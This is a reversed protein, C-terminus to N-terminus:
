TMGIISIFRGASEGEKRYSFFTDIHDSTCIESININKILIGQEKLNLYAIKKLDLFFLDKKKQYWNQYSPFVKNFMEIRKQSVLYCCLGIGPGIYVILDKLNSGLNKLEDIMHKIILKSLGKYGAHAAGIIKKNRDYFLIPFCDATIIGLFINRKSTILGDVKQIIKETPVNDLIEIDGGHVQESLVLRDSSIKFKTLFSNIVQFNIIGHDKMSGSSRTSYASVLNPYQSFTKFNSTDFHIM